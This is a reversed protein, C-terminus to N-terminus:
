CNMFEERTVTSGGVFLYDVKAFLAKKLIEALKVSDICKEPDILIAVQGKKSSISNLINNAENM